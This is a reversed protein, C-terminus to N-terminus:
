SRVGSQLVQIQEGESRRSGEGTYYTRSPGRALKGPSTRLYKYQPMDLLRLVKPWDNNDFVNIGAKLWQEVVVNPISAVHRMDRNQTWGGNADKFDERNANLIPEVDQTRKFTTVDEHSDHSVETRIFDGDGALSRFLM